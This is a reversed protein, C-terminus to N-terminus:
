SLPTVLEPDLCPKCSELSPKQWSSARNALERVYLFLFSSFSCVSRDVGTNVVDVGTQAGSRLRHHSIESALHLNMKLVNTDMCHVKASSQLEAALARRGTSLDADPGPARIDIDQFRFIADSTMAIALESGVDVDAVQSM